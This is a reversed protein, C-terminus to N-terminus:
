TTPSNEGQSSKTLPRGVKNGAAASAPAKREKKEELYTFTSLM